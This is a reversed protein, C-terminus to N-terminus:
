TNLRWMLGGPIGRFAVATLNMMLRSSVSIIYLFCGNWLIGSKLATAALRSFDKVIICNIKGARVLDLLQQVAPREFSTGSYGNDVFELIEMNGDEDLANAYSYLVKKQNEISLSEVKSDEVSLRIYLATVYSPSLVQNLLAKNM